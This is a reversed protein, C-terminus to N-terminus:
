RGGVIHIDIGALLKGVEVSFREDPSCVSEVEVEEIAEGYRLAEAQSLYKSIQYLISILYIDPSSWLFSPSM